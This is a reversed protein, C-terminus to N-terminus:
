RDAVACSTGQSRWTGDPCCVLGEPCCEPMSFYVSASAQCALVLSTSEDGARVIAPARGPAVIYCGISEGSSEILDFSDAKGQNDVSLRNAYVERVEVGKSGMCTKVNDLAWKLHDKAAVLPSDEDSGNFEGLSAGSAPFFGVVLPGSVKIANPDQVIDTTTRPHACKASMMAVLLAALGRSALRGLDSM